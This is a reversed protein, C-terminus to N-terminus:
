RRNAARGCDKRLRLHLPSTESAAFVVTMIRLPLVDNSLFKCDSNDTRTGKSSLTMGKEM